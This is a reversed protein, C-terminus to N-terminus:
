YSKFWLHSGWFHWNVLVQKIFVM